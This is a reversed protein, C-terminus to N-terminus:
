TMSVVVNEVAGAPCSRADRRVPGSRGVRAGPAGRRSRCLLSPFFSLPFVSSLFSTMRGSRRSARQSTTWQEVRGTALPLPLPAPGDPGEWPGSSERAPSRPHRTTETETGTRTGMKLTRGGQNETVHGLAWLRLGTGNVPAVNSRKFTKSM